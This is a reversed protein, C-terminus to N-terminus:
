DARRVAPPNWRGDAVQPKPAYLRLTLALSGRKPSPLWNPEKDPGPNENQVYLDLSGNAGFKLADRDGKGMSDLM